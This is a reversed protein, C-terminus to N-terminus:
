FLTITVSIALLHLSLSALFLFFFHVYIVILHTLQKFPLVASGAREHHSFYKTEVQGVHYAQDAM